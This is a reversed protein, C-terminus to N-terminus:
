QEVLDSCEFCVFLGDSEIWRGSLIEGCRDCSDPLRSEELRGLVRSTQKAAAIKDRADRLYSDVTSPSIDMMSATDARPLSMLDRLVLVEAQRESLLGADTLDDVAESLAIGDRSM